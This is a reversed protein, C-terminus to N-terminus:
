QKQKSSESSLEFTAKNYAEVVERYIAHGPEVAMGLGAAVRGKTQEGFFAGRTIIDSM